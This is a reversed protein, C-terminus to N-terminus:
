VFTWNTFYQSLQGVTLDIYRLQLSSGGVRPNFLRFKQTQSNYSTLVYSHNPVISSLLGSSKSNVIIPNLSNIQSILTQANFDFFSNARVGTVNTLAADAFGWEIGFYSNTNNGARGVRDNVDSENFQAYAKEALAVWLENNIDSFLSGRNAYVFRNNADVPLFRDVTVYDVARSVADYFRVAFTGDGNDTFMNQIVNPQRFAVSALSALFYCDNLNVSQLVDDQSIGDRFLSGSASKYTYSTAPRISGYFWKDILRDMQSAASGTALDGIGSRSNAVNGSAIKQSLVRVSEPMFIRDTNNVLTRLDSLENSDITNGDKANRFIAIMDNRDLSGDSMRNRVESRLEGDKINLDFWDERPLISSTFSLKAGGGREYYDIVVNFTGGNGADFIGTNTTSQDVLKNIVTSNNITILVGDDSTSQIQHRGAAFNRQTTVRASFNDSNVGTGPSGLGWDRFFDSSGSGLDQVLVPSGSRDINNFYEAKWNGSPVILTNSAASINYNGTVNDSYSTARAIYSVGAQATFTIQSNTGGNFDDNEAVVQGTAENVLQLYADFSSTMDLRVQQGATIGTLRFDDSYKGSRTPNNRDSTSLQGSLTQNLALNSIPQQLLRTTFNLNAAGGREYYDVIVTFTGGNGADFVGTNTTTPQDVLRDIITQGAINVKVGDDSTTQIEHRGPAFYRQATARLSFNDANIAYHPSSSGWNRSFNQNGNGWDEILVPEGTRSTNNYLEVKWNNPSVYPPSIYSSSYSLNAAGGREYYDVIVTFMGGSSTYFNGTNTTTPQDVLRDIITQGGINVKVGDDSTTQIRHTGPGFYRQATARLSFNDSGIAGNPSGNGWNRSFGQSGDGWDQILVPTGTRSINNYLEVRWNSGAFEVQTLEGSSKMVFGTDNEAKLDALTALDITELNALRVFINGEDGPSDIPSAYNDLAHVFEEVIAKGVANPNTANEALFVNNLLLTNTEKAYAASRGFFDAGTLIDIDPLVGRNGGLIDTGLAEAKAVDFSSGFAIQANAAFNQNFISAAAYIL